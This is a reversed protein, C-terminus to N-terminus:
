NMSLSLVNGAADVEAIASSTVVAGFGNKARYTSHVTIADPNVTYQTNVHEYSSPNNLRSKVAAEVKRHSGDFNSFQGDVNTGLQSRRVQAAEMKLKIAVVEQLEAHRSAYEANGPEQVSLESYIQVRRDFPLEKVRELEKKMLLINANNYRRALDPDKTVSFFKSALVFAEKANGEQLAKDVNALVQTRNASWEAEREARTKAIRDASAKAQKAEVSEQKEKLENSTHTGHLMLLSFAAIWSLWLGPAFRTRKKLQRYPWPVLVACALVGFLLAKTSFSEFADRVVVFAFLAVAVYQAADVWSEKIAINRM